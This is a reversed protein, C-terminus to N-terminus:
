DRMVRLGSGASADDIVKLNILEVLSIL